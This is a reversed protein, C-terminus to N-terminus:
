KQKKVVNEEVAMCYTSSSHLAVSFELNSAGLWHAGPFSCLQGEERCAINVKPTLAEKVPLHQPNPLLSHEAALTRWFPVGIGIDM